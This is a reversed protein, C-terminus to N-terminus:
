RIYFDTLIWEKLFDFLYNKRCLFIYSSDSICRFNLVNSNGEIEMCPFELKGCHISDNGYSSVRTGWYPFQRKGIHFRVLCKINKGM